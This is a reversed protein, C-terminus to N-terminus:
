SSQGKEQKEDEYAPADEYAPLPEEEALELTGKEVSEEKQAVTAYGRQGGRRFKIWLYGILRGAAMGLLSVFMGMTIGAVVPVLVSVVAGVFKHMFRAQGHHGHHPLGQHMGHPRPSQGHHHKPHKRDSGTEVGKFDPREHHHKPRTSQRDDETKVDENDSGDHHHKPRSFHEDDQDQSHSGKVHPRPPQGPHHKRHDFHEDDNLKVDKSHSHESHDLHPRFHGPLRNPGKRGRCGKGGLGHPKDHKFAGIASEFMSKIKCLASPFMNCERPTTGMPKHPPPPAVIDHFAPVGQVSIIMLSGDGGELMKVEVADVSVPRDDLSIIHYDVSVVKDGAASVLHDNVFISAASVDRNTTQEPHTRVDALSASAAVEAVTPQESNELTIPYIQFDNIMLARSSDSIKFDLFLDTAGGQAWFLDEGHDKEAVLDGRNAPLVCEPCSIKIAQNSPDLLTPASIGDVAELGAPIIFANASAALALAGAACYIM